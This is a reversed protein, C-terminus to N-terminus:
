NGFIGKIFNVIKGGTGVPAEQKPQTTTSINVTTSSVIRNIPTTSSIKNNINGVNMKPIVSFDQFFDAIIIESKNVDIKGRVSVFDGVNYLSMGQMNNINSLDATFTLGWSQIVLTNNKISILKGIISTTGNQTIMIQPKIEMKIVPKIIKITSNAQVKPQNPKKSVNQAKALLAFGFISILIFLVSIQFKTNIKM